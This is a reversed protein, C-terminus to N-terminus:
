QVEASHLLVLKELESLRKGLPKLIVGPWTEVSIVIEQEKM